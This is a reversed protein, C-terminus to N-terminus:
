EIELMKMGTLKEEIQCGALWDIPSPLDFPAAFLKIPVLKTPIFLLLGVQAHEPLEAGARGIPSVEFTCKPQQITVKRTWPAHCRSKGIGPSVALLNATSLAIALL